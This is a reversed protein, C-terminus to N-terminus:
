MTSHYLCIAFGDAAIPTIFRAFGLFLLLTDVHFHQWYGMATGVVWEIRDMLMGSVAKKSPLVFSM